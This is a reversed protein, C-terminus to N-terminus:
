VKEYERLVIREVPYFCKNRQPCFLEYTTFSYGGKKSKTDLVVYIEWDQWKSKLIDGVQYM